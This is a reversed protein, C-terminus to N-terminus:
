GRPDHIRRGPVPGQYDSPLVTSLSAINRSGTTTSM